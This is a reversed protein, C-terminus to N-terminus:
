INKYITYKNKKIMKIQNKYFCIIIKRAIIIEKYSKIFIKIIIIDYVYM